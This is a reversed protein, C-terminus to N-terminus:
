DYEERLKKWDTILAAYQKLLLAEEDGQLPHDITAFSAGRIVDLIRCDQIPFNPLAQGMAWIGIRASEATLAPVESFYPYILRHSDDGIRVSLLNEVKVVSELSQVSFQSKVSNDLIKFPENIWRRKENWWTLFGDALQPYLRTRRKNKDARGAALLKLDAGGGAHAKADTWFPGYFDGGGSSGYLQKKIDRRIDDRIASVRRNAPLYFLTLLKRLHIRRLSM